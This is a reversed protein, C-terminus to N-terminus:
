ILLGNLHVFLNNRMYSLDCIRSDNLDDIDNWLALMIPWTAQDGWRHKFYGHWWSQYLYNSFHLNQKSSFMGVWGGVFNGYFYTGNKLWKSNIGKPIINHILGYSLMAEYNSSQCDLCCNETKSHFFICNKTKMDLFINTSLKNIWKIDLDMKIFFDYQHIIPSFLLHHTFFAGSYLVYPLSWKLTDCIGWDSKDLLSPMVKIYSPLEINMGQIIITTNFKTKYYGDPWNDKWVISGKPLWNPGDYKSLNTLQIWKFINTQVNEFKYSPDISNNQQWPYIILWTYNYVSFFNVMNNTYFEEIYYKKLMVDWMLGSALSCVIGNFNNGNPFEKLPNFQASNPLMQEYIPISYKDIINMSQDRNIYCSFYNLHCFILLLVFMSVNM